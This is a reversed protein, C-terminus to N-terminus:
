SSSNCAPRRQSQHIQDSPLLARRDPAADRDGAAVPHGCLAVGLARRRGCGCAVVGAALGGRDGRSAPCVGTGAGCVCPNRHGGMSAPDAHMCADMCCQYPVFRPAHGSREHERCPGAECDTGGADTGARGAMAVCANVFAYPVVIHSSPIRVRAYRVVLLADQKVTCVQMCAHM